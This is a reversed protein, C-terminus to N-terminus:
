NSGITRHHPTDKSENELYSFPSESLPPLKVLSVYSTLPAPGSLAGARRIALWGGHLSKAKDCDTM